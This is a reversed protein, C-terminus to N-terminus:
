QARAANEDPVVFSVADDTIIVVDSKREDSVANNEEPSTPINLSPQSNLIKQTEIFRLQLFDQLKQSSPLPPLRDAGIRYWSEVNFHDAFFQPDIHFREGLLSVTQPCVNEVLFLRCLEESDASAKLEDALQTVGGFDRTNFGQAQDSSSKLTVLSFKAPSRLLNEKQKFSTFSKYNSSSKALSQLFSIYSQTESEHLVPM